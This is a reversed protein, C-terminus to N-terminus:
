QQNILRQVIRNLATSTSQAYCNASGKNLAQSLVDVSVACVNAAVDIPAQVTIPINSINVSLHNAINNLIRANRLDVNVLGTQQASAPVALSVFATMCPVLLLTKAFVKM